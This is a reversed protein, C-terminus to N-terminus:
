ISHYMVWVNSSVLQNLPKLTKLEGCAIEGVEGKSMWRGRVNSNLRQGVGNQGGRGGILIAFGRSGNFVAICAFTPRSHVEPTPGVRLM